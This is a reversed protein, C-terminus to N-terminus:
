VGGKTSSVGPTPERRVRVRGRFTTRQETFGARGSTYARALDRNRATAELAFGRSDAWKLLARSVLAGRFMGTPVALLNSVLWTDPDKRSRRAIVSAWGDDEDIVWMIAGGRVAPVAYFCWETVIAFLVVAAGVLGTVVGARVVLQVWAWGGVPDSELWSALGVLGFTLTLFAAAVRWMTTLVWRNSHAIARVWEPALVDTVMRAATSM